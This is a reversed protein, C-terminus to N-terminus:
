ETVVVWEGSKPIQGQHDYGCSYLTGDSSMGLTTGNGATIKELKVGSWGSFTCCASAAKRDKIIEPYANFVGVPKGDTTLGVLHYDGAAIQRINKWKEADAIGLGIDGAVVVSGDAKLGALFAPKGEMEGVAISVIDKWKDHASNISDLIERAGRGSAFINGQKDLGVLIRYGADIYVIDQWGTCDIYKDGYKQDNYGQIKVTGDAFLAAVYDFGASVQLVNNWDTFNEDYWDAQGATRTEGNSYLGISYYGGISLSILGERPLKDQGFREEGSLLVSDKGIAISNLSGASFSTALDKRIGSLCKEIYQLSDKYDGLIRFQAIASTFDGQEFSRVAIEYADEAADDLQSECKEIYEASDEYTGDISNFVQLAEQFKNENYLKVAKNYKESNSKATDLYVQLDTAKTKSDKFFQIKDYLAIAKSYNGNASSNEAQKYTAEAFIRIGVAILFALAVSGVVIKIQLSIKYKKNKM